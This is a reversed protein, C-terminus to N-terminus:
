QGGAFQKLSLANPMAVGNDVIQSVVSSRPELTFSVLHDGDPRSLSVHSVDVAHADRAHLMTEVTFLINQHSSLLAKATDVLTAAADPSLQPSASSQASSPVSAHSAALAASQDKTLLPEAFLQVSRLADRWAQAYLPYGADEFQTPLSSLLPVLTQLAELPAAAVYRKAADSWASLFVAPLPHDTAAAHVAIAIAFARDATGPPPLASLRDLPISQPKGSLAIDILLSLLPHFRLGIDHLDHVTSDTQLSQRLLATGIAMVQADAQADHRDTLTLLAAHLDTADSTWSPPIPLVQANTRGDDFAGDARKLWSSSVATLSVPVSSGDTRMLCQYGQPVLVFQGSAGSAVLAPGRLAVVTQLNGERLVYVRGAVIYVTQAGVGVTMMGKSDALVGGRLLTIAQTAPDIRAQTGDDLRVTAADFAYYELHHADLPVLSGAQTSVTHVSSVVAVIALMCLFLPFAVFHHHSHTHM